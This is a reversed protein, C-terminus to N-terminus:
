SSLAAGRDSGPVARRLRWLLVLAVGALTLETLLAFRLFSSEVPEILLGYGRLLGIAGYSAATLWLGDRWRIRHLACLVILAGLALEVGGYFARMEIAALTGSLEIGAAALTPLPALVFAVGFGLYGLGALWMWAPVFWRM